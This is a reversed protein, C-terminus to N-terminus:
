VVVDKNGDGDIDASQIVQHYRLYSFLTDPMVVGAGTGFLEHPEFIEARSLPAVFIGLFLPLILTLSNNLGFRQNEIM